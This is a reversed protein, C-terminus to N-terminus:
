VSHRNRRLDLRQMIYRSYVDHTYVADGRLFHMATAQTQLHRGLECWLEPFLFRSVRSGPEQGDRDLWGMVL